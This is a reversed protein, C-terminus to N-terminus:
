SYTKLEPSEIARLLAKTVGRMPWIHPKTCTEAGSDGGPELFSMAVAQTQSVPVLGAKDADFPFMGMAPHCQLIPFDGSPTSIIGMPPHSSGWQQILSNGTTSPFIGMPPQSFGWQHIPFDGNTASLIGMEPHFFEWQHNLFDGNSSPFSGSSSPLIGKAPHSFGRQLSRRGAGHGTM